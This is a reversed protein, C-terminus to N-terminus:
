VAPRDELVACVACLDCETVSLCWGDVMVVRDTRFDHRVKAELAQALRFVSLDDTMVDPGDALAREFRAVAAARENPRLQALYRRGLAALARGEGFRSLIAAVAEDASVAASASPIAPLASGGAVAALGALFRRRSLECSSPNPM